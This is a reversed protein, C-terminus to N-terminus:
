TLFLSHFSVWRFALLTCVLCLWWSAVQARPQRRLGILIGAGVVTLALKYASLAAPSKVLGGAMPNLETMIGSAGGLVTSGLDFASLVVVLAVNRMVLSSGDGCRECTRCQCARPQQSLLVGFALVVLAMGGVNLVYMFAASPLGDHAYPLRESVEQSLRETLAESPVFRRVAESWVQRDVVANPQDVVDSIRTDISDERTNLTSALWHAHQPLSVYDLRGGSFMVLSGQELWDQLDVARSAADEGRYRRGGPVTGEEPGAPKRLVRGNLVVDTGRVQVFYPPTIYRGDGMLYGSLIPQSTYTTPAQVRGASPLELDNAMAVATWLVALGCCGISTFRTM